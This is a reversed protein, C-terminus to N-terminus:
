ANAEKLVEELRVDLMRRLSGDAAVHIGCEKLGSEEWWWRGAREEEGPLTARTCPACGISTYGQAYLPHRPVDHARIYEDVELATWDALPNLKLLGEQEEVKRLEARSEAQTRRAGTAWARFEKLKRELPRVKRVECCLKRLAGDVYFLNAGHRSVMAQVEAPDPLVVEVRLGYRSRVTDIMRYTEEPLRGTDLTIVRFDGPIRSAMDLIVMGSAQFSTALALKEGFTGIAWRILEPATLSELQLPTTL